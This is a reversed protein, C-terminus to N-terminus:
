KRPLAARLVEVVHRPKRSTFHEIQQRCSVGTVAVETAADASDVAPFLRESGIKESVEYHEKEFGFSGAM